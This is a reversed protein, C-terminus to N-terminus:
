GTRAALGFRRLPRAGDLWLALALLIAIGAASVVFQILLSHGTEQAVIGGAVALLVGAMFIQLSHRGCRIVPRAVLSQALRQGAPLYRRVVLALALFSAIRLPALAAKGLPLGDPKLSPMHPFVMRLAEPIEILATMAAFGIAARLLWPNDIVRWRERIQPHGLSAGLVFLFQWALPNFFWGNGYPFTHPTLAFVQVALYLALSPLLVLWFNRALLLLVLPFVFLLVVYVPLIDLYAPQYRLLLAHLIATGPRSLFADLRFDSHYHGHGTGAAALSVEALVFALLLMQALYLVWTRRWIKKAAAFFGKKEAMRGYVMAAVFGSLFFFLEAADAFAYARLTVLSFLSDPVHDVFIFLLALGRLFDIREDRGVPPRSVESRSGGVAVSRRHM